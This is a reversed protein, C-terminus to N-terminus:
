ADWDESDLQTFSTLEADTQYVARLESAARRLRGEKAGRMKEEVLARPLASVSKGSKKSVRTLYNQQKEDLLIQVRQMKAKTKMNFIM